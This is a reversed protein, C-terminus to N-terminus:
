NFTIIKEYNFLNFEPYVYLIYKNLVVYLRKLIYIISSICLLYM